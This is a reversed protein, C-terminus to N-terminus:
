RGMITPWSPISADKDRSSCQKKTDADSCRQLHNRSDRNAAVREIGRIGGDQVELHQGQQNASDEHSAVM